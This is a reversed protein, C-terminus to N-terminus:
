YKMGNSAGPSKSKMRCQYRKPIYQPNQTMGPPVAVPVVTANGGGPSNNVAGGGGASNIQIAKVFTMVGTSPSNTAIAVNVTVVGVDTAPPKWSLSTPFKGEPFPASHTITSEPGENEIKAASCVSATQARMGSDAGIVFVGVHKTSKTELLSDQDSGPTVYALIGKFAPGDKIEFTLPPGGPTYTAASPVITYKLDEIKKHAAGIAAPNIACRPAGSPLAMVIAPLLAISALIATFKVM